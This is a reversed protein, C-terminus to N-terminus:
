PYAGTVIWFQPDLRGKGLSRLSCDRQILVRGLDHQRQSEFRPHNPGGVDVVGDQGLIRRRVLPHGHQGLFIRALLHQDIRPRVEDVAAEGACKTARIHEGALLEGLEARLGVQGRCGAEVSALQADLVHVRVDEINAADEPDFRAGLLEDALHARADVGDDVLNGLFTSGRADHEVVALCIRRQDGGATTRTAHRDLRGAPRLM